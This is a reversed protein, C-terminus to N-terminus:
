GIRKNECSNTEDGRDVYCTDFGAGGELRDDGRNNRAALVDDGDDGQLLNRYQVPGTQNCGGKCGAYLYDDGSNGHMNDGEQGGYLVDQSGGGQLPDTGGGGTLTDRGGQGWISNSGSGGNVCEWADSGFYDENAGLNITVDCSALPAVPAGDESHAVQAGGAWTAVGIVLCIGLWLKL